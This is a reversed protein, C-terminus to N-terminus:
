SRCIISSSHNTYFGLGSPNIKQFPSKNKCRQVDMKSKSIGVWIVCSRHSTDQCFLGKSTKMSVKGFRQYLVRWGEFLHCNWSGDLLDSWSNTPGMKPPKQTWVHKPRKPIRPVVLESLFCVSCIYLMLDHSFQQHYCSISVFIHKWDM